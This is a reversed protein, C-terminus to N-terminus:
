AAAVAADRRSKAERAQMLEVAKRRNVMTAPPTVVLQEIKRVPQGMNNPNAGDQEMLQERVAEVVPGDKDRRVTRRIWGFKPEKHSEESDGAGPLLWGSDEANPDGLAKCGRALLWRADPRLGEPMNDKTYYPSDPATPQPRTPGQPQKQNDQAM